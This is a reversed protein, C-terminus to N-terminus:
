KYFTLVKTTTIPFTCIEFLILLYWCYKILFLNNLIVWPFCSLIKLETYKQFLSRIIVSTSIGFVDYKWISVLRCKNSINYVLFDVINYFLWKLLLSVSFQWVFHNAEKQELLLINILKERLMLNFRFHNSRFFM